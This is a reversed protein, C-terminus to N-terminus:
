LLTMRLYLLSSQNLFTLPFMGSQQYVLGVKINCKPDNSGDSNLRISSQPVDASLKDFTRASDMLLYM